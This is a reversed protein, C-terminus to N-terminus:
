DRCVRKIGIEVCICHLVMFTSWITIKKLSTVYPFVKKTRSKKAREVNREMRKKIRAKWGGSGPYEDMFAM